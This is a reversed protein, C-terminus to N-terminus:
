SLLTGARESHLFRQLDNYEQELLRQKVRTLHVIKAQITKKAKVTVSGLKLVQLELKLNLAM